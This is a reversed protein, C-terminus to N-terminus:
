EVETGGASPAAPCRMASLIRWDASVEDSSM